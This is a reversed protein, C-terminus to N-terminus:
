LRAIIGRVLAGFGISARAATEIVEAHSLPHATYGAALNTILSFGLVRMDNARAAIVEPVTSMGIADAGLRELMRIEASTEYAPGTLALYTGVQLRAGQELAVQTRSDRCSAITLSPCTPSARSM